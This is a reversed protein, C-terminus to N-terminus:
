FNIHKYAWVGTHITMVFNSQKKHTTTHNAISSQITEQLSYMIKEEETKINYNKELKNIAIRLHIEGQGWM